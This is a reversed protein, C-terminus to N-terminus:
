FPIKSIINNKADMLYTTLIQNVASTTFLFIGASFAIKRDLNTFIIKRFPNFRWLLFLSIYIKVYYDLKELYQPASKFIGVAFLIYLLYTIIIFVNFWFDQVKYLNKQISM